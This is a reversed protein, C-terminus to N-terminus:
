RDVGLASIEVFYRQGTRQDRLGALELRSEDSRVLHSRSTLLRCYEAASVFHSRPDETLLKLKEAEVSQTGNELMVVTQFAQSLRGLFTLSRNLIAPRAITFM